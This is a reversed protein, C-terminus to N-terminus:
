ERLLECEAATLERYAGLPLSPDLRLKGMAVRKLYIVKKGCAQFMRKVQHFKGERIWVQVESLSGSEIIELKGPLTLYGDDLVIGSKFAEQDATTVKGEIKAWYEKFVHQKPALLQHGLPGDNTLLLLGETDKDLRGVPFIGKNIYKPDLLDLVTREKSDETASIVGAPKNLMVYFYKQYTVVEGRLAIEDGEPEILCGPDVVTTENVKAQGARIFQRVEKRSGCGMNALFRDLRM